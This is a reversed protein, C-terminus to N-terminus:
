FGLNPKRDIRNINSVFEGRKAKFYAAIGIMVANDTFLKKNYPVYVSLNYKRAIKRIERRIYLNSIVGGGLLVGNVRFEEIAQALKDTLHLVAAKQFSAAINQIEGRGLEKNKKINRILYLVATKLGSFSFDLDKRGKMPIPLNYSNEDGDKSIKEIIPGGPYGLGLMKAVKDFAEGCADDLTEGLLEYNGFDKMLVLQTHGGSVLLGMLPFYKKDFSSGKENSNQAFPALLHGEMHNIAILPKKNKKALEKAKRIGVELAPALGPGQTVAIADVPINTTIHNIVDRKDISNARKLAEAIVVGINEEHARKAINPVVGGYKKHLEVQSSVVNSFVRRGVTVAGSTEDCSTDIALIRYNEM